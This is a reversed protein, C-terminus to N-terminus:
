LSWQCVGMLVCVNVWLSGGGSSCGVVGDGRFGYYSCASSVQLLQICDTYTLAKAMAVAPAVMRSSSILILGPGPAPPQSDRYSASQM